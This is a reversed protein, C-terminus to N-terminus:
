KVQRDHCIGARAASPIPGYSWVGHHVDHVVVGAHAFRQGPQQARAAQGALRKVAGLGKLRHQLGPRGLALGAAQQQVHAHGAHAAQGQEVAPPAPRAPSVMGTIKRVPWASTGVATSATLRPAKSKQSFGNESLASTSRM